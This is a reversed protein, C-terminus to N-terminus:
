KVKAPYEQLAETKILFTRLQPFHSGGSPEARVVILLFSIERTPPQIFLGAM